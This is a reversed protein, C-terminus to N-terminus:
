SNSQDAAAADVIAHTGCEALYVCQVQPFASTGRDSTHRGFAAANQPTDPVDDVAGDIAM